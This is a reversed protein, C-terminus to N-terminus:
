RGTGPHRYHVFTSRKVTGIAANNGQALRQPQQTVIPRVALERLRDQLV